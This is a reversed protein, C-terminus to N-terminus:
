PKELGNMGENFSISLMTEDDSPGLAVHVDRVPIDRGTAIERDRGQQAAGARPDGRRSIRWARIRLPDALVARPM